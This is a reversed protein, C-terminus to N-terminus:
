EVIRAVDKSDKRAPMKPRNASYGLPILSVPRLHNPIDLIRRAETEDVSGVWCTGLGLSHAMIMGNEVAAAVDMLAYTDVGHQGYRQAIREDTCAVICIPADAVHRQNHAAKALQARKEPDRVFYFFRSQLNGASPALRMAEIVKDLAEKPVDDKTFSRIARRGAITEMVPGDSVAPKKQAKGFIDNLVDDIMTM